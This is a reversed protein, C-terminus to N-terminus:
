SHAFHSRVGYRARMRARVDTLIGQVQVGHRTCALSIDVNILKKAIRAAERLPKSHGANAKKPKPDLPNGATIRAGTVVDWAKPGAHTDMGAVHEVVRSDQIMWSRATIM